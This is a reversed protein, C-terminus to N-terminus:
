FYLGGNVNIVQGTIYSANDSSLFLCAHAVEAPTGLRKLLIQSLVNKMKNSKLANKAMNSAILGPSVSNCRIKHKACFRAYVQTLSILGAKSAAYHATRPGGYQGSVSSINIFSGSESKKLLLFFEQMIFFPAKLNCNIIKNWNNESVKDFDEPKNIGSANIIIDIKKYKKQIYKKLKKIESLKNINLKQYDIDNSKKKSKNYTGIIKCNNIKLQNVIESGLLGSSGFVLAIKGNLNFM